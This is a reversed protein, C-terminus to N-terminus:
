RNMASRTKPFEEEGAIAASAENKSKLDTM